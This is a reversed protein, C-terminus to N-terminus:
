MGHSRLSAELIGGLQPSLPFHLEQLRVLLGLGVLRFGAWSLSLPIFAFWLALWSQLAIHICSVGFGHEGIIEGYLVNLFV